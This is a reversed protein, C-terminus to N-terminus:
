ARTLFAVAGLRLKDKVPCPGLSEEHQLARQGKGDHQERRKSRERRQSPRAAILAASMGGASAMRLHSFDIDKFEPHNLLANYLTNLGSMATFRNNKLEKIFGPIDRPNPILLNCGGDRLMFMCNCTLAYIHDLPLPAVMILPDDEKRQLPQGFGFKMTM